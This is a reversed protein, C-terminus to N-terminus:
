EKGQNEGPGSAVPAVENALADGRHWRALNDIWIREVAAYNGSSHAASHPSVMVNPLDWLPSAPDLPERDFVDLYAGALRKDRLAAILDAEVVVEGRAVNLLHAGDPLLALRRADILHRTTDTLPCALILWDCHPLHEDLQSFGITNAPGAERRVALVHLDLMELLKCLRQGIPGFGVIVATQGALPRPAGTLLPRWAHERQAAALQPFRRALALLAGLASQAVIPATAGSSTTVKVGRQLLEPFIPRDAGASHTHVWALQGSARLPVYFEALSPELRTKTSAGTVDRSIFAIDVPTGAAATRPTVLRYPRGELVRDIETRLSQAARESLLITLL